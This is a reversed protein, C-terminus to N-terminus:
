FLGRCLYKRAPKKTKLVLYLVHPDKLHTMKDGRVYIGKSDKYENKKRGGGPELCSICDAGAETASEQKKEEEPEILKEWNIEGTKSLTYKQDEPYGSGAHSYSFTKLFEGTVTQNTKTNKIRLALSFASGAWGKLSKVRMKELDLWIGKLEGKGIWGIHGVFVEALVLAKLGKDRSEFFAYAGRNHGNHHDLDSCLHEFHLPKNTDAVTFNKLVSCNKKDLADCDGAYCHPSVFIIFFLAVYKMM